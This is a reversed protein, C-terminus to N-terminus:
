KLVKKQLLYFCSNEEFIPDLDQTRILLNPDHNIPYHNKDFFRSQFKNVSFLSDCKKEQFEIKFERFANTITSSKLFPNTAHTMLYYKGNSNNLDDEIIRNM